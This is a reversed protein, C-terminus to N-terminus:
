RRAASAANTRRLSTSKNKARGAAGRRACRSIREERPTRLPLAVCRHVRVRWEERQEGASTAPFEKKECRECRKYSAVLSKNKVRGVVGKRACRSLKKRAASAANTRRM